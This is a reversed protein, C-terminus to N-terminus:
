GHYIAKLLEINNLTSKLDNIRTWHEEGYNNKIADEEHDIILCQLATICNTLDNTLLNM